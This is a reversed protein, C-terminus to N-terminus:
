VGRKELCESLDEIVRSASDKEVFFSVKHPRQETKSKYLGVDYNALKSSLIM